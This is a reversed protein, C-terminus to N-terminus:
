GKALVELKKGLDYIQRNISRLTEENAVRGEAILFANNCIPQIELYDYFSAIEEIEQESRGDLIAHYLEGSECASGIILGERYDELVTKPIRPFRKYYDLYSFSILKYLNKLGLLDRAFIIMHHTPLKLPDTSESMAEIMREFTDIGEERLRNQMVFFIHALIRADDSARHHHFEELHYHEAIINLKHRKLEPNVYKSLGVTDLFTNTFPIAHRAAAIRIFGVDFNANHAILMRDGVFDLFSRLAEEEKPAGKVM